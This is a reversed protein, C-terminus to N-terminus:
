EEERCKIELSNYSRRGVVLIEKIPCTLRWYGSDPAGGYLYFEDPHIYEFTTPKNALLGDQVHEWFWGGDPRSPDTTQCCLLLLALRRM